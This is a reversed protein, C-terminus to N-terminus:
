GDRAENAARAERVERRLRATMRYAISLGVNVGILFVLAPNRQAWEIM